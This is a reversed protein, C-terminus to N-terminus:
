RRTPIRPLIQLLDRTVARGLHHGRTEEPAIREADLLARLAEGIQRRKFGGTSLKTVGWHDRDSM